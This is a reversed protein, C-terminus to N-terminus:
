IVHVMTNVKERVAVIVVVWVVSQVVNVFVAIVVLKVPMGEAIIVLLVSVVDVIMSFVM